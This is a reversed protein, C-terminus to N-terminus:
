VTASNITTPRGAVSRWAEVNVGRVVLWLALAGEGLLAIPV